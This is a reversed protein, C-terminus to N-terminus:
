RRRLGRGGGLVLSLRDGPYERVCRLWGQRNRAHRSGDQGNLEDCYEVPALMSPFDPWVFDSAVSVYLEIDNNWLVCEEMGGSSVVERLEDAKDIEFPM